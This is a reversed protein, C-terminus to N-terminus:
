KQAKATIKKLARTTGEIRDSSTDISPMGYISVSGRKAHSKVELAKATLEVHRDFLGQIQLEMDDGELERLTRNLLLIAGDLRERAIRMSVEGTRFAEPKSKIARFDLYAAKLEVIHDYMEDLKKDLDKVRIKELVQKTNAM